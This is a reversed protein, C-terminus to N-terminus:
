KTLKELNYKIFNIRAEELDQLKRLHPNYVTKFARIQQNMSEISSKFSQSAVEAKYKVTISNKSIRTVKNVSIDGRNHAKM